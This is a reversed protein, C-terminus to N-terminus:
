AKDVTRKYVIWAGSCIPHPSGFSGNMTSMGDFFKFLSRLRRKETHPRLGLCKEEKDQGCVPFISSVFCSSIVVFDHPVASGPNGDCCHRVPSNQHHGHSCPPQLMHRKTPDGLRNMGGFARVCPSGMSEKKQSAFFRGRRSTGQHGSLLSPARVKGPPRLPLPGFRGARKRGTACARVRPAHCTRVGPCM